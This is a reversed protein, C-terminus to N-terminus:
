SAPEWPPLSELQPFKFFEEFTRAREMWERPRAETDVTRILEYYLTKLTSPIVGGHYMRDLAPRAHRESTFLCDELLFVQLGMDILGLSSQLICVDTEGGAVAVQTILLKTIANRIPVESCCNFTKKVFRQGHQPFMRELREPLWGKEDVPHEFTAIFPLKLWDSLMLLRELRVLVPDKNGHM